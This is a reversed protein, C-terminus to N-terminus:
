MKVCRGFFQVTKKGTASSKKATGAVVLTTGLPCKARVKKRGLQVKTSFKKKSRRKGTKKASKKRTKKGGKKARRKTSKKKRKTTSM